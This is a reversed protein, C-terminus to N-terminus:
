DAARRRYHRVLLWAIGALAAVGLLGSIAYVVVAWAGGQAGPWAYDPIVGNWWEGFRVFGTPVYGLKARLEESGWEGWATGTAILGLPVAVLLAIVVGWLWRAKLRVRDGTKFLEPSTRALFGFVGVSFLVEVPGVIVAHTALMASLAVKLGYPAYQAVGDVSHLAPQIGLEIGTLTAATIIGAYSGAGVAVLRRLSRLESDGAVFRYAGYGVLPMAVAMNFCNIGLALLGGDAFLLAQIVLAATVALIAIEPGAIVAILVAGVAHATTGGFVPINLMMVLFSFAASAALLPVAKPESLTQKARRNAWYWAPTCAAWGAAVTEPGLYGDPIHM